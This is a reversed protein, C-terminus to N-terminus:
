KKKAFMGTFATLIVKPKSFFAFLSSTTMMAVGCWLSWKLIEGFGYRGAQVVGDRTAEHIDGIGIAYPALICYNVIAGILISVGTRIGMLGGAAMMVFDSDLRVTLERLDVGGVKLTTLKYIWGDLFEPVHLWAIYLKETIKESQLVKLLAA